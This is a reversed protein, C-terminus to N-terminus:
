VKTHAQLFRLSEPLRRTWLEFNHHGPGLFWAHEIHRATLVDHLYQAGDQLQLDDETGADLYIALQGPALKQALFAPDHDRWFQIETGYLALFWKGVPGAGIAWLKPDDVIKEQGAVYPHPGGYLLADVGSHSAVAAYLEPHRFALTLAGYGGMSLGAIARAERKAVTRFTKDTWAVLDGTIYTDYHSAKVCTDKHSQEPMMLGAGTQMCAAYDEPMASDIYFNNDGDPMVVIAALGLEDATTDLHGGHVWNTEDGTLGNLYYFVPYRRDGSDYGAPLYVVVHKDVGLADSHWTRTEVHGKTAVVPAPKAVPAPPSSCAVLLALLLPKM